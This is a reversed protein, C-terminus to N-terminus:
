PSILLDHHWSFAALVKPNFRYTQVDNKPAHIDKKQDKLKYASM